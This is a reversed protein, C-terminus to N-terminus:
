NDLYFEPKWKSIVLKGGELEIIEDKKLLLFAFNTPIQRTKIVAVRPYISKLLEKLDERTIPHSMPSTVTYIHNIKIEPEPTTPVFSFPLADPNLQSSASTVPEPVPTVSKPISTVPHENEIDKPETIDTIDAIDAIDSLETDKSEKSEKTESVRNIEVPECEGTFGEFIRERAAQYKAEREELSLSEMGANIPSPSSEFNTTTPSPLHSSQLSEPRSARNLIKIKPAKSENSSSAKKEKEETSSQKRLSNKKHKNKSSENLVLLESELGDEGGFDLPLWDSCTLIPLDELKEEEGIRRALYIKRLNSNENFLNTAEVRHVLNYRRGLRHIIRRYFSNLPPFELEVRDKEMLFKVLLKESKKLFKKAEIWNASSNSNQNIITYLFEDIKEM